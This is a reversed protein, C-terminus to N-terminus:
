RRNRGSVTDARGLAPRLLQCYRRLRRCNWSYEGSSLCGNRKSADVTPRWVLISHRHTGRSVYIRSNWNWFESGEWSLHDSIDPSEFLRATRRSGYVTRLALTGGVLTPPNGQWLPFPLAQCDSSAPGAGPPTPNLPMYPNSINVYRNYGNSTKYSSFFAYPTKGYGDKYSPFGPATGVVGPPAYPPQPVWQLLRDSKFDFFPPVRDSNLDAPNSPNTAFGTMTVGSPTPRPIGGAFFVLCQEGELLFGNCSLLSSTGTAPNYVSLGTPTFGPCAMPLDQIVGDGNWDIGALAWQSQALTPSSIRPFVRQLYDLSDQHLQTWAQGTSPNFYNAPNECLIIRSPVYNVGYKTEFSQLAAGLQTIDTRTQAEYAMDLAKFVAALLLSALVIIIAIVVLLEVLTFAARGTRRPFNHALKM